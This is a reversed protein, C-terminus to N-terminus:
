KFTDDLDGYQPALVEEKEERLATAAKRATYRGGHQEKAQSRVTNPSVYKPNVFSFTL